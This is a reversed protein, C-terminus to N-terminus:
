QNENESFFIFPFKQKSENIEEKQNYAPFDYDINYTNKLYIKRLDVISNNVINLTTIYDQYVATNTYSYSITLESNKLSREQIKNKLEAKSIAKNNIHITNKGIELMLTNEKNRIPPPPLPPGSYFIDDLRISGDDKDYNKNPGPLSPTCGYSPLPIRMGFSKIFEYTNNKLCLKIYPCGALLLQEKIFEFDQIKINKDAIIHVKIFNLETFRYKLKKSLFEYFGNKVAITENGFNATLIDKKYTIFLPTFLNTEGYRKEIGDGSPLNVELSKDELIDQIFHHSEKKQFEYLVSDTKTNIFVLKSEELEFKVSSRENRKNTLFLKNRFSTYSLTDFTASFDIMKNDEFKLLKPSDGHELEGRNYWFGELKETKSCCVLLISILFIFYNKM